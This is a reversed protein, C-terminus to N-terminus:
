ETALALMHTQLAQLAEQWIGAWKLSKGQIYECTYEYAYICARAFSMLDTNPALHRFCDAHLLSLIM